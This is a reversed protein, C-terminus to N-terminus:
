TPTSCTAAPPTCCARPSAPPAPPTSSSSRTRPTWRSPSATRELHGAAKMEEHWWLDRGETMPRGRRRPARRHREQGDPVREVADDANAKSPLSSAAACPTTRPSWSRPSATRSATAAAVARLLRRLRRQPHRRHPRLGAHLDGARPDDAPLDHGPRGEQRREEEARQRLPQGRHLAAPLYLDQLQRRRGGLHDRGQQADRANCHRDLCNVSVNLKGGSFWKIYPKHFDYDLVKDWKKYWTLNEGGHEGWFGEPDEVSRNYLRRTSPWARSTRRERLVGALAPVDAERRQARDDQIDQTM